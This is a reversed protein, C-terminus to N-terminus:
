KERVTHFSLSASQIFSTSRFKLLSSDQLVLTLGNWEMAKNAEEQQEAPSRTIDALMKLAPCPNDIPVQKNNDDVDLCSTFM